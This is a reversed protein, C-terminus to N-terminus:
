SSQVMWCASIMVSGPPPLQKKLGMMQHQTMWASSVAAYGHQFDAIIEDLEYVGSLSFADNVQQELMDILHLSADRARLLTKLYGKPGLKCWLQNSYNTSLPDKECGGQTMQADQGYKGPLCGVSFLLVLVRRAQDGLLQISDITKIPLPM